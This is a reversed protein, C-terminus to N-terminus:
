DFRRVSALTLRTRYPNPRQTSDDPEKKWWCEVEIVQHAPVFHAVFFLRAAKRDKEPVCEISYIQGGGPIQFEEPERLFIKRVPIRGPQNQQQQRQQTPDSM